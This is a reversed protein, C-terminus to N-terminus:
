RCPTLYRLVVHPGADNPLAPGEVIKAEITKWQAGFAEMGDTTMLNVVHAPGLTPAIQPPSTPPLPQASAPITMPVTAIAACVILKGLSAVNRM